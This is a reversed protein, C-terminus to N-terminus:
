SPDGPGYYSPADPDNTPEDDDPKRENAWETAKAMIQGAISNVAREAVDTRLAIEPIFLMLRNCIYEYLEDSSVPEAM